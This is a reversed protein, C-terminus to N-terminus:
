KDLCKNIDIQTNDYTSRAQPKKSQSCDFNHQVNYKKRKSTLYIEHENKRKEACRKSNAIKYRMQAFM